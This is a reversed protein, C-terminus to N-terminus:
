KQFDTIDSINLAFYPTEKDKEKLLLVFKDNFSFDRSETIEVANTQVTMGAESELIAGEKNLEFKINQLAKEIKLIEGDATEFDKDEIDKYEKESEMSIEPIKLIDAEELTKSGTYTQKENNIKEIVQNFNQKKDTMCLIIEDNTTTSISIAKDKENNYYLISVQSRAESNSNKKLGFYSTKTDKGAFTDLELDDFPVAFKLNKVLMAYLFYRINNEKATWDFKDIFDSKKGFKNYIDTEIKTKLEPSIVGYTKYYDAESIDEVTFTSKNLNDACELQPSFEIDQKVIDNKLDNWVLQFTGCWVSNGSVKDELTAIVKIKDDESTLVPVISNQIIDQAKEAIQENYKGILIIILIIIIVLIIFLVVNVKKNEM